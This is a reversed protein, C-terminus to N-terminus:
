RLGYQFVINSGDNLWIQFVYTANTARPKNNINFIWQQATPDWRFNTDPTTSDVVENTQTVTGSIISVIRFDSVVGPTGISVGNANCVRFKAPSTSKGNFVSSGDVNIPQLIQHGADGACIGGVAYQVTQTMSGSSGTFNGDGSYTATILNANVPIASTTLAWKGSGIPTGTGLSMNTTTDVFTVTGTPTGTFQPTVTATFTVPQNLTSPNVSSVVGLTTTAKSVTLVASAVSSSPKFDPSGSYSTAIAYNGANVGSGLTFSASAAGASVAGSTATGVVNNLNDRVTFTVTGGNVATGNTSNGVTANLIVSATGYTAGAAIPTVSTNDQNVILTGTSGATTSSQNFDTSPGFTATIAYSGAHVSTGLPFSATAVGGSVTGSTVSGVTAVGQKVTFTVTGENIAFSNTTNTVTAQLSVSADGYNAVAGATGIATNDANITFTAGTNTLAYNSLVSAPALNATIHYGGAQVTEGAVRTYTATVNDAAVFNTGSGTTLPNPDSDGYNKSAPQTTWTAPRTTITFSAGNNTVTYNSLAAAPSLTATIAYPGGLVTEGAARSYTATVNDAPLFNTGSGTTLPNPDADGYTKSAPQTTWTALRKNITFDAGTNTVIYNDLVGAAANLTATIHYPGGAVTEGATRSYTATVNDAAVFNNGSGTTLPNPDADGYTKSAPQTAWTALRKNIAFDAGTNTINYNSLVGSPALTATIHYPGGAVTEGATRGYTATVNDAAVFNNGSGTTLPNPDADGYTKSAAQTTWTANRTNITFNAGANTINYNSLVGSPALTATIHYPGGAVTEGATRSYTATVNDAAVFNNGSGTTLPNPDADGYTKSAPQATWTANRQNITFNAGANTINYNSLVSAPSLTATILYPGGAVTEGAARSYTATVNDGALFGSGSGTTLPNPDADGYTKSNPNTTWTANKRNVNITVDKSANNYTGTDTPTFDVHLTQGSGANLVTGAAPTYVFTGPVSATANLQAASLATGYTIDAPNAWTITPTAKGVSLPLTGSTSAGFQTGGITAASFSAAVNHTAVSLSSPNYTTFSAVGGAGTTASGAPAGDVTFNVTAGVVGASTDNRTLTATFTVPGSSGFAVSNPTVSNMVLTTPVTATVTLTSTAINGTLGFGGTATATVASTTNNKAGATTATVNVSLTCSGNAPITGGSLSVTAAGATPAFTGGCTNSASPTAAVQVGSPLPDSFAAATLSTGNTNGLTFSLTSTGGVAVSSPSFSKSISPPAFIGVTYTASDTCQNGGGPSCSPSTMSASLTITDGVEPAAPATFHFTLLLPTSTTLGAFSGSTADATSINSSKTLTWNGSLNSSSDGGNNNNQIAFTVTFNSGTVESLTSSTPTNRSVAIKLNDTFTSQAESQSGTATLYFRIGVDHIDPSFQNNFINGNSDAVATLDPHSDFDPVEELHLTVTEGPQWGTGTITVISGPAYDEQDTKVTAFRYLEASSVVGGGSSGGVLLLLGEQNLPSTAANQRGASTSGTSAFTGAWPFFLEATNTENGAFTGGVILVSNNHPLLIAAHDRRPAALGSAIAAFGGVAPDFVEASALDASGNNGGAVLVRGDLLSTATHGERPSTMAPGASIKSATPDFIDSTGVPASGNSGGAILVRGDALSTAALGMRPSSLTGAFSFQGTAPDYIEATASATAGNQGGAIFVRGDQLPAAAAKSRAETMGGAVTTWVGLAPDYIEAANTAAGGSTSGGAVLVRGDKLVVAVHGARPTAMASVAAFTGDENLVEASNVAGSGDDGGTALIRHDQLLVAAAGSRAAVMSGMPQWTGTQVTPISAIGTVTLLLLIAACGLLAAAPRKM